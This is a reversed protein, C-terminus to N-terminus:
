SSTGGVGEWQPPDSFPVCFITSTQRYFCHLILSANKRWVTGEGGRWGKDGKKRMGKERRETETKREEGNRGEGNNRKGERRKRARGATL